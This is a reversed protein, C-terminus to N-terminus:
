KIQTEFVHIHWGTGPEERIDQIQIRISKTSISGGPITIFPQPIEGNNTRFKQSVETVRGDTATLMVTIEYEPMYGLSLKVQGVQIPSDYRIEFIFPNDRKGRMLTQPDNDFLASAGGMDLPQHWVEIGPPLIQDSKLLQSASGSGTVSPAQNPQKQTQQPQELLPLSSSFNMSSNVGMAPNKRIAAARFIVLGSDTSYVQSPIYDKCIQMDPQPVEVAPNWILVAPLPLSFLRECTLLNEPWIVSFNQPNQMAFQISKPEPMGSAWGGGVLYIRTDRPLMDVYDVMKSAVSTNQLPLGSIYTIFYRQLNVATIIVLLFIVTAASALRNFKKAILLGLWWLGSAVFIYAIPAAGITRGASPVEQPQVLMSPVQILLFSMVLLAGWTRRESKMWFVIGILMLVLSIADVHPMSAPNARFISDGRTVFALMAKIFNGPLNNLATQPSGFKSGFHGTSFTQTNGLLTLVLPLGIIIGTMAFVFFNKRAYKQQFLYFILMSGSIVPLMFAAGYLYMGLAATLGCLVSPIPAFAKSKAVITILWLVTTTVLPVLAQVDGLRSYVLLWSGVSSVLTALLAFKTNILNRAFIFIMGLGALSMLAASIKISLYSTGLLNLFLSLIAPYLPGVGLMFIGSAIKGERITQVYEYVTSIDGYWEAPKSNLSVFRALAAISFVGLFAAILIIPTSLAHDKWSLAKLFSNAHDIPSAAISKSAPLNFTKLHLKATNKHAENKNPSETAEATPNQPHPVEETVVSNVSFNKRFKHAAIAGLFAIFAIVIIGRGMDQSMILFIAPIGGLFLAFLCTRAFRYSFDPLM